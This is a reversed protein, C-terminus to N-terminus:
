LINISVEDRPGKRNDVSAPFYLLDFALGSTSVHHFMLLLMCMVMEDSWLSFCKKM